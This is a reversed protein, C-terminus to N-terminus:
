RSKRGGAAEMSSSQPGLTWSVTCCSSKVMQSIVAQIVKHLLFCNLNPCSTCCILSILKIDIGTIREPAPEKLLAELGHYSAGFKAVELTVVPGTQVM